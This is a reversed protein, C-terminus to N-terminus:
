GCVVHIERAHLWRMPCEGLIIFVSETHYYLYISYDEGSEFRRQDPLVTQGSMARMMPRSGIIM